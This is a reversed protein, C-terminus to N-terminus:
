QQLSIIGSILSRRRYKLASKDSWYFRYVHIGDIPISLLCVVVHLELM